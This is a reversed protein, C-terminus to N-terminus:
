AQGVSVRSWVTVREGGGIEPDGSTSTESPVYEHALRRHKDCLPPQEKRQAATLQVPVGCKLTPRAGPGICSTGIIDNDQSPVLTENLSEQAARQQGERSAARAEDMDSLAQDTDEAEIQTVLGRRLADRFEVSELVEESVMTVDGHSPDGNPMLTISAAGPVPLVLSNRRLNRILTTM